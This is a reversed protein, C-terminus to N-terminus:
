RAMGTMVCRFGIDGSRYSLIKDQSSIIKVNEEKNTWSGGAMLRKGLNGSGSTTEDYCWEWVNGSMDYISLENKLKNGVPHTIGKANKEYWAVDGPKDSGSYMTKQSIVGGAAAYKWENLKPLRKAAWNAYTNADNWSVHVVPQNDEAPTREVGLANKRWNVKDMKVLFGKKDYVYSWGEREADTVYGTEDIFAKFEPLTVEYKDIYFDETNIEGGSLYNISGGQVFIMNEDPYKYQFTQTAGRYTIDVRGEKVSVTKEDGYRVVVGRRNLVVSRGNEEISINESVKSHTTKRSDQNIILEDPMNALRLNNEPLSYILSDSYITIVDEDLKIKIKNSYISEVHDKFIYDLREKTAIETFLGYKKEIKDKYIVVNPKCFLISVIYVSWTKNNKIAKITAVRCSTRYPTELNAHHGKFERNFYIEFYPYDNIIVPGVQIDKFIVTPDEDKSYFMYYDNLYQDVKVDIITKPNEANYVNPDIDSEIVVNDDYFLRRSEVGKGFSHAILEQSISQNLTPDALLYMLSELDQVLIMGKEQIENIESDTLYTTRQSYSKLSLGLILLTLILYKSM